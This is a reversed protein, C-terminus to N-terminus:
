HAAEVARANGLCGVQRLAEYLVISVANALNLSRVSDIATPIGYVHPQMGQVLEEALGVSEKGFVLADGPQFQCDVFSQEAKASFCILRPAVVASRFASFDAHHTLQVLHWYDLGARRVAQEDIRFGLKGVLHLPSKTAASLRAINGTNQPIEPEILVLQFPTSPSEFRLRKV